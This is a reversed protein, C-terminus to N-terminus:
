SERGSRVVRTRAMTSRHIARRSRALSLAARRTVSIGVELDSIFDSIDEAFAKFVDTLPAQVYLRGDSVFAPLDVNGITVTLAGDSGSTGSAEANSLAFAQQIFKDYSAKGAAKRESM